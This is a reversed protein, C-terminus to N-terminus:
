VEITSGVGVYEYAEPFREAFIREGVHGTCHSPAFLDLRNGIWDAIEQIEAPSSGVLHTGGIVARVQEGTVAEAHEITNRLGAHCCGCVLAIGNATEVALSQDDAIQDAERSGDSRVTTGLPNDPHPRPIEGLAHIGDAVEIPGDHTHIEVDAALRERRYPLGIYTGDQFKPDFADPHAYVTEAGDLFAPLGGTHDYHGHSLVIQEYSPELGLRRANEVAEGTQGTDFLVDGVVAAFGHEARLGMPRTGAVRDDMVIQITTM